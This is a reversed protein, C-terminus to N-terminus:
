VYRRNKPVKRCRRRGFIAIICIAVTAVLVAGVAWVAKSTNPKLSEDNSGTEDSQEAGTEIPIGKSETASFIGVDRSSTSNKSTEDSLWSKPPEMKDQTNGASLNGSSMSTIPKRTTTTTVVPRPSRTTTSTTTTEPANFIKRYKDGILDLEKEQEEPLTFDENLEEEEDIHDVLPSFYALLEDANIRDIELYNKMVDSWNDAFGKRIMKRCYRWADLIM